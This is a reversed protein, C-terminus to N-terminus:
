NGNKAKKFEWITKIVISYSVEPTSPGGAPAYPRRFVIQPCRMFVSKNGANTDLWGCPQDGYQPSVVYGAPDDQDQILEDNKVFQPVFRLHFRNPNGRTNIMSTNPKEKFDNWRTIAADTGNDYAMHNPIWYCGVQVRRYDVSVDTSEFTVLVSRCRFYQYNNYFANLLPSPSGPNSAFNDFTFKPEFLVVSNVDGPTSSITLVPYQTYTVEDLCVYEDAMRRPTVLRGAKYKALTIQNVAAM